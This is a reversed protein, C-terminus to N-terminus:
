RFFKDVAPRARQQPKEGAARVFDEDLKGELVDLWAWAQAQVLQPQLHVVQDFIEVGPQDAAVGVAPLRAIRHGRVVLTLPHEGM